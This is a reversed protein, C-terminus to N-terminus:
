KKYLLWFDPRNFKQRLEKLRKRAQSLDTFSEIAVRNFGAVQPLIQPNYGLREYYQKTKVANQYVRFSGVIIYINGPNQEVVQDSVPTIKNTEQDVTLVKDKQSTDVDTSVSDFPSFEEEFPLANEEFSITDQDQAEAKSKKNKCGMSFILTASLFLILLRKM